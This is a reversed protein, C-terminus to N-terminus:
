LSATDQKAVVLLVLSFNGKYNHSKTGTGATCQICIYKRNLAGILNPLNWLEDFDNAIRLCNKQSSLTTKYTADCAEKIINSVTSKVLRYTFSLSQQLEDSALFQLM